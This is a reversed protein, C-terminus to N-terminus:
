LNINIPKREFPNEFTAYKQQIAKAYQSISLNKTKNREDVIKQELLSLERKEANVNSM